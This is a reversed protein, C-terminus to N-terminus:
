DDLISDLLIKSQIISENLLATVKKYDIGSGYPFSNKYYIRDELNVLRLLTNLRGNTNHKSKDTNLLSIFSSNLIISLATAHFSDTLVMESSIIYRLFDQPSMNSKLIVNIGFKKVKNRVVRDMRANKTVFVFTKEQSNPYKEICEYLSEYNMLDYVFVTNPEITIDSAMQEWFKKPNLFVPDLVVTSCIDYKNKLEKSPEEERVSIIRFQKLYEIINTKYSNISDVNGFSAAYSYKLPIREMTDMPLYYIDDALTVASNWVQDSGVIIKDYGYKNGLIDRRNVKPSINIWNYTKKFRRVKPIRKLADYNLQIYERWTKVKKKLNVYYLSNIRKSDYNIIEVDINGKDNIYKWLSLMQYLAGYNIANVFTLIGIKM